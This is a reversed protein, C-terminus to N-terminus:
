RFFNTFNCINLKNAIKFPIKLKLTWNMSTKPSLLMHINDLGSKIFKKFTMM